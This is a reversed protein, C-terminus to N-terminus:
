WLAAPVRAPDIGLTRYFYTLTPVLECTNTPPTSVKHRDYRCHRRHCDLHRYIAVGLLLSPPLDCTRTPPAHLWNQPFGLRRCLARAGMVLQHRQQQHQQMIIIDGAPSTVSEAFEKFNWSRISRRCLHLSAVEGGFDAQNNVVDRM